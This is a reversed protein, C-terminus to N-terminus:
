TTLETLQANTLRTMFLLAQSIKGDYQFTSQLLLYSGLDIFSLSTSIAGSTDTGIQVGNVYLVFDNAKYGFAIKLTQGNTFSGGSIAAQLTTGSYVNLVIDSTGFQLYTAQNFSTSVSSRLFLPIAGSPNRGDFTCEIFFSGETTGFLSPVSASSSSEAVRTVSATTTPIYSTAYSGAELQWNTVTGSITLILSGATPTFTLAV